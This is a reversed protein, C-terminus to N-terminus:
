NNKSLIKEYLSIYDQFKDEKNYMLAREICAGRNFPKEKHTLVAKYLKELNGKDIVIGCTEDLSEPSGGTQFTIVPTGCALSEINTTPFSDELTPNVFVDAMSYLEALEDTNNTRPITYIAKNLEKKQKENIGVLVIRVDDGLMTALENFFRIGKNEEWVSAVGLLTYKGECGYKLKLSEREIEDIARPKFISLDVGNPIVYIPYKGLFSEKALNALWKSPTVITLNKPATFLQKKKEYNWKSNDLILSKPYKTKQPCSYCGTKWRGCGIYDFHSCHGTFSWCDHLTWVIPTNWESLCNFLMEINIYYGHINHLHIIDAKAKAMRSLLFETSRVSGFGHKDSIRTKLGHLYLDATSGIRVLDPDDLNSGRGYAVTCEHGKRKIIESLDYVIRGTSGYNYVSNILFARM